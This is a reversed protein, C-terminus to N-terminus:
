RKPLAAKVTRACLVAAVLKVADIIIFPGVGAIFAAEPGLGTVAMLQAWGCLYSVALFLFGAALDVAMARATSSTRAAERRRVASSLVFRLVIAAAAGLLFGWLFGGTPGALVGIGGRMSSFMPLGLAGLALYGTLAAVCELPTLVLCAFVVVFTQLTFPVPGLPISIWASVALLAISLGVFAISRTRSMGRAKCKAEEMDRGKEGCPTVAGVSLCRIM